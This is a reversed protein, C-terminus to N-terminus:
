GRIGIQVDRFRAPAVGHAVHATQSPQGKGCNPTGWIVWEEPGCV